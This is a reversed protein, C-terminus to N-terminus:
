SGGLQWWGVPHWRRVQPRLGATISTSEGREHAPPPGTIRSNDLDGFASPLINLPDHCVERKTVANNLMAGVTEQATEKRKGVRRTPADEREGAPIADRVVIL